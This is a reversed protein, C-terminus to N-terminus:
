SATGPGQPRDNLLAHVEDTLLRKMGLYDLGHQVALSAVDDHELKWRTEGDPLTALKIRVEGQSTTMTREQRPLMHKEVAHRRVGITTSNLFLIRQLRDADAPACLMSIKTG